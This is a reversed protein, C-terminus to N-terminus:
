PRTPPRADSDMSGLNSAKRGSGRNLRNTLGHIYRRGIRRLIDRPHWRGKLPRGQYQLIFQFDPVMIGWYPCLSLGLYRGFIRHNELTDM